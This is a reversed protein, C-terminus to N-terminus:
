SHNIKILLFKINGQLSKLFDYFYLFFCLPFACSVDLCFHFDCSDKFFLFLGELGNSHKILCTMSSTSNISSIM